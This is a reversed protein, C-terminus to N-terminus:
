PTITWCPGSLPMGSLERAKLHQARVQDGAQAVSHALFAAVLWSLARRQAPSTMLNAIARGNYSDAIRYAGHQARKSRATQATRATSHTQPARVADRGKQVWRQPSRPCCRAWLQQDSIDAVVATILPIASMSRISAISGNRFHRHSPSGIFADM